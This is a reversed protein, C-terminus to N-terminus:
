LVPSMASVEQPQCLQDVIPFLTACETGAIALEQGERTARHKSEPNWAWSEQEQSLPVPVGLKESHNTLRNQFEKQFIFKM